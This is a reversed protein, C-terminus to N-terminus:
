FGEPLDEKDEVWEYYMRGGPMTADILSNAKALQRTTVGEADTLTAGYLIAGSLNAGSLDADTLDAAVLESNTLDADTLNAAQMDADNLFAGNLNVGSLNAVPLTVGDLHAGRLNSDRLDASTLTAHSLVTASLNAERLDAGGLDAGLLAAGSLDSGRLNAGGLQVSVLASHVIYTGLTIGGLDADNLSIIPDKSVDKAQILSAEALFHVVNNKHATDLRLLLTLTRARALTRVESDKDSDRLNKELLLNGMQDLYAQLAEAQARQDALEREAKARQDEIQQQRYDQQATFWWGILVLALPIVLMSLWDRFTMGRFGTWRPWVFGRKAPPKAIRLRKKRGM